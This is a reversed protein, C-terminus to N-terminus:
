CQSFHLVTTWPISCSVGRFRIWFAGRYGKIKFCGQLGFESSSLEEDLLQFFHKLRTQFLKTWTWFLHSSEFVPNFKFTLNLCSIKQKLGCLLFWLNQSCDIRCCSLRFVSCTFHCQWTTTGGGTMIEFIVLKVFRYELSQCHSYEQVSFVGIALCIGEVLFVSFVPLSCAWWVM